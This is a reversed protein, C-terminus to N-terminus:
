RQEMLKQFDRPRDAVPAGIKRDDRGPIMWGGDAGMAPERGNWPLTIRVRPEPEATIEPTAPAEPLAEAGGFREDVIRRWLPGSLSAGHMLAGRALGDWWARALTEARAMAEWLDPDDAVREDLAALSVGLGAAMEARSMGERGMELLRDALDAADSM